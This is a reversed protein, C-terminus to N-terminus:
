QKFIPQETTRDCKLILLVVLAKIFHPPLSLDVASAAANHWCLDQYQVGRLFTCVMM